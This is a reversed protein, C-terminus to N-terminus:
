LGRATPTNNSQIYVIALILFVFFCYLMVSFDLIFIM